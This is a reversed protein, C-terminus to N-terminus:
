ALKEIFYDELAYIKVFKIASFLENASMTGKDKAKM